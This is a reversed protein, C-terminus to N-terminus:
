VTLFGPHSAPNNNHAALATGLTREVISLDLVRYAALPEGNDLCLVEGDDTALPSSVEGTVIDNCMNAIAADLEERSVTDLSPTVNFEMVSVDAVVIHMLMTLKGSISGTIAVKETDPTNCVAIMTGDESFLAMERVTFGGVDDDIVIRVDIMQPSQPSLEASAIAGRWKERKLAKQDVTPEYYAGGGDGAAAQVIPLKKGSLICDAILYAGASTIITGYTKTAM